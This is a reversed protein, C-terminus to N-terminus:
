LEFAPLVVAEVANGANGGLQGFEFVSLKAYPVKQDVTQASCFRAEGSFSRKFHRVDFVVVPRKKSRGFPKFCLFRRKVTEAAFADKRSIDPEVM